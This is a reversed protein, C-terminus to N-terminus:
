KKNENKTMYKKFDLISLENRLSKSESYTDEITSNSKRNVMSIRSSKESIDNTKLNFSSIGVMM